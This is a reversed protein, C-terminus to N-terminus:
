FGGVVSSSHSIKEDCICTPAAGPFRTTPSNSQEVPFGSGACKQVCEPDAIEVSSTIKYKM